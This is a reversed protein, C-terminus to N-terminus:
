CKEKEMCTCDSYIYEIPESDPKVIRLTGNKCLLCKPLNKLKERVKMLIKGLINEGAGTKLDVGYHLDQWRNGEQLEEDGTELLAEKLKSNQRFKRWVIEEMIGDKIEEWDPRLTIKKGLKKAVAPNPALRINERQEKDLTKLAQYLHETSNWIQGEYLVPCEWFNSLFRYKGQFEKIM